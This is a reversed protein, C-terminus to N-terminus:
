YLNRFPIINFRNRLNDIVKRSCNFLLKLESLPKSNLLDKVEEEGYQSIIGDQKNM